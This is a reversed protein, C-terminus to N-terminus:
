EVSWAAIREGCGLMRQGMYPNTLTDNNTQVWRQYGNAMPCSFLARGPQLTPDAVVAAVIGRALDGFAIRAKKIDPAAGLAAIAAAGKAIDAAGAAKSAVLAKAAVDLKQAVAVLTTVNDDALARWLSEYLAFAEGLSGTPAVAAVVPASVPPAAAGPTADARSCSAVSACVLVVVAFIRM